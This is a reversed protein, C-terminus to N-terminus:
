PRRIRPGSGPAPGAAPAPGPRPVAPPAGAAPGAAPTVPRPSVGPRRIAAGGGALGGGGPPRGGSQVVPGATGRLPEITLKFSGVDRLAVDWAAAGKSPEVAVAVSEQQPSFAAEGSLGRSLRGLRHGQFYVDHGQFRRLAVISEQDGVRIRYSESRSLLWFAAALPLMIVLLLVALLAGRRSSTRLALHIPAVTSAIELPQFDPFTFVKSAQDIGFIDAMKSREFKLRVGSFSVRATGSYEVVAGSFATRLWAWLGRTSIHLDAHSPITEDIAEVGTPPITHLPRSVISFSQPGIEEVGLEDAAWSEPKFAGNPIVTYNGAVVSHQTLYSHVEGHLEVAVPHDEEAVADRRNALWVKVPPTTLELADIELRKLKLHQRGTFLDGAPSGARRSAALFRSRMKVDFRALAEHPQPQPAVRIGYIALAGNQRSKPDAFPMEFLHVSQYQPGGNLAEFFRM